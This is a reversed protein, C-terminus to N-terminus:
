KCRSHMDDDCKIIIICHNQVTGDLAVKMVSIKVVKAWVRGKPM